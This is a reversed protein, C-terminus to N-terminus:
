NLNTKNWSINKLSILWIICNSISGSEFSKPFSLLLFAFFHICVPVLGQVLNFGGQCFNNPLKTFCPEQDAQKQDSEGHEKLKNPRYLKKDQTGVECRIELRNKEVM